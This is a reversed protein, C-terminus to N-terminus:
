TCADALTRQHLNVYLTFPTDAQKQLHDTVFSAANDSIADTYYFDDPQYRDNWPHHISAVVFRRRTM